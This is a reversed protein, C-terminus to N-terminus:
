KYSRQTLQVNEFNLDEKHLTQAEDAGNWEWAGVYAFNEDDRLAEGEDIRSVGVWAGGDYPKMFMPYGIKEGLAELDFLKALLKEVKRDINSKREKM